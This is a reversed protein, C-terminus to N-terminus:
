IKLKNIITSNDSFIIENKDWYYDATESQEIESNCSNTLVFGNGIILLLFLTVKSKKMLYIRDIKNRFKMESLKGVFKKSM